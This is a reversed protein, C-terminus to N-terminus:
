SHTLLTTSRSSPGMKQVQFVLVASSFSSFCTTDYNSTCLYFTPAASANVVPSTQRTASPLAPSILDHVNAASFLDSLNEECEELHSSSEFEARSRQQFIHRLYFFSFISKLLRVASFSHSRPFLRTASNSVSLSHVAGTRELEDMLKDIEALIAERSQESRITQRVKEYNPDDPRCFFVESLNQGPYRNGLCPIRISHKSPATIPDHNIKLNM